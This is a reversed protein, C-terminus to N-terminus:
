RGVRLGPERLTGDQQQQQPTHETHKQSAKAAAQIESLTEKSIDVADQKKLKPSAKPMPWYKLARQFADVTNEDLADKEVPEVDEHGDHSIFRSDPRNKGSGLRTSIAEEFLFNDLHLEEDSLLDDSNEEANDDEPRVRTVVLFNQIYRRSEESLIRGDFWQMMSMHWSDLQGCMRGLFPVHEEHWGPNLTFPHFYTM